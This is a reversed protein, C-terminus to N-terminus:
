LALWWDILGYVTKPACISTGHLRKFGMHRDMYHRHENARVQAAQLSDIKTYIYIHIKSICNLSDVGQWVSWCVLFRYLINCFGVAVSEPRRYRVLSQSNPPPRCANIGRFDNGTSQFQIKSMCTTFKSKSRRATPWILLKACM